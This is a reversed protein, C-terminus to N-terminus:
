DSYFPPLARQGRDKQFRYKIGATMLWVDSGYLNGNDDELKLLVNYEAVLSVRETLNFAPGTGYIM